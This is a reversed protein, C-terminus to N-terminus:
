LQLIAVSSHRTTMVWLNFVVTRERERERQASRM